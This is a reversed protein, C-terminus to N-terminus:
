RLMEISLLGKEAAKKEYMPVKLPSMPFMLNYNVFNYLAIEAKKVIKIDIEEIYELGDSVYELMLVGSQM